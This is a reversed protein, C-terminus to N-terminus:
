TKILEEKNGLLTTLEKKDQNNINSMKEKARTKQRIKGQAVTMSFMRRRELGEMEQIKLM